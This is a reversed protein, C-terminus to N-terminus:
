PARREKGWLVSLDLADHNDCAIIWWQFSQICFKILRIYMLLATLTPFQQERPLHSIFKPYQVVNQSHDKNAYAIIWVAYTNQAPWAWLLSGVHTCAELPCYDGMWRRNWRAKNREEGPFHEQRLQCSLSCGSSLVDPDSVSPPISLTFTGKFLFFVFVPRALFIGRRAELHFNWAYTM